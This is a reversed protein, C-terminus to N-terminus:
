GHEIDVPTVHAARFHNLMTTLTLAKHVYIPCGEFMIDECYWAANTEGETQIFGLGFPQAFLASLLAAYLLPNGSGPLTEAGPVKAVVEPYFAHLAKLVAPGNWVVGEMAGAMGTEPTQRMSIHDAVGVLVASDLSGPYVRPGIYLKATEAKM